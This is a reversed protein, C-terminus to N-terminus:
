SNNGPSSPPPQTPPTARINLNGPRELPPLKCSKTGDAQRGALLLEGADTGAAGGGGFKRKPPRGAAGSVSLCLYGGDGDGGWWWWWRGPASEMESGSRREGMATEKGM